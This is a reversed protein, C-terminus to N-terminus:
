EVFVEDIYFDVAFFSGVNVVDIHVDAVEHGSATAPWEGDDHCRFFVGKKGCGVEWFM